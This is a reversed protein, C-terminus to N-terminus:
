QRENSGSSPNFIYFFDLVFLLFIVAHLANPHNANLAVAKEKQENARM